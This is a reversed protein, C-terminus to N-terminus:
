LGRELNMKRRILNPLIAFCNVFLSLLFAKSLATQNFSFPIDMAFRGGGMM